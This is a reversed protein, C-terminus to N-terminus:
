LCVGAIVCKRMRKMKIEKVWGTEKKKRTSDRENERESESKRALTCASERVLRTHVRVVGECECGYVRMCECRIGGVGGERGCM